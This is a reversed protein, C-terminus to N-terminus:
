RQWLKDAASEKGAHHSKHHQKPAPPHHRSLLKEKKSYTSSDITPPRSPLDIHHPNDFCTALTQQENEINQATSYSMPNSTIHMQDKGMINNNNSSCVPATGSPRCNESTVMHGSARELTARGLWVWDHANTTSERPQKRGGLHGSSGLGISGLGSSGTVKSVAAGLSQLGGSGGSLNHDSSEVAQPKFKSAYVVCSVVFVVIAFCFAALLVYMGIELPTMNSSRSPRMGVGSAMGNAVASHHQRAQVTPEHNNEDKLPIGVHVFSDFTFYRM